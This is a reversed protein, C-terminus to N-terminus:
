LTTRTNENPENRERDQLCLNLPLDVGVADAEVQGVKHRFGIWMRRSYPHSDESCLAGSLFRPGALILTPIRVACPGLYSDPALSDPALSDPALSDPALLSGQPWTSRGAQPEFARTGLGGAGLGWVGSGLGWDGAGAAERM